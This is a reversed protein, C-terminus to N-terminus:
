NQFVIKKGELIHKYMEPNKKKLIDLKEQSLKFNDPIKDSAKLPKWLGWLELSNPNVNELGKTEGREYFAEIADREEVLKLGEDIWYSLLSKIKEIESREDELKVIKAKDRAEDSITLEPIAKCFETFIEEKTPKLYSGDLGKKHGMLKEAINYNVDKNLKLITNFRKRFGYAPAKDFRYGEKTREIGSAKILNQLLHRLSKTSM